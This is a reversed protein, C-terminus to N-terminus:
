NRFRADVSHKGAGALMFFVAVALGEAANGPHGGENHEFLFAMFLDFALILAAPRTLLGIGILGACVVEAFASMFGWFEPAFEIGIYKMNSGLWEWSDPATIKMWGHYYIMTFAFGLRLLLLATNIWRHSTDTLLM